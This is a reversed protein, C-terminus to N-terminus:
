PWSCCSSSSGGFAYFVMSSAALVGNRAGQPLVWSALLVAPLFYWLFVPAAFSM